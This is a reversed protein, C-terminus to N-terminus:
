TELRILRDAENRKRFRECNDVDDRASWRLQETAAEDLM